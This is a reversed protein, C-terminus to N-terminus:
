HLCIKLNTSVLKRNVVTFSKSNLMSLTLTLILILVLTIKIFFIVSSRLIEWMLFIVESISTNLKEFQINWIKIPNNNHSIYKNDTIYHHNGYISIDTTHLYSIQFCSDLEYSINFFFTLARPRPIGM